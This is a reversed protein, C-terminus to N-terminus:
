INHYNENNNVIISNKLLNYDSVLRGKTARVDALIVYLLPNEETLNHEIQTLDRIRAQLEKLRDELAMTEDEIKKFESRSLYTVM